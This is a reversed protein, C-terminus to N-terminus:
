SLLEDLSGISVDSSHEDEEGENTNMVENYLKDFESSGAVVKSTQM